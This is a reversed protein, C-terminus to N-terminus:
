KTVERAIFRSVLAQLESEKGNYFHDTGAIVVQSSGPIKELAARRQAAAKMVPPLDHDGYVDLVPVKVNKLGDFDGGRGLCVWAAFPANPTRAFYAQSMWSGLSHSLLVIRSYGKAALWREGLAIREIADPFLKPHYDAPKADAALVPMQISLTSYGMDALGSRLPGFFSFDPQVGMGHVMLVAAKANKAQTYLGLLEHGNSQKLWVADGVVLDPVVEDDWRKERAYDQAAVSTSLTALALALWALLTRRM